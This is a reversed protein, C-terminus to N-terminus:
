GCCVWGGGELVLGWWGLERGAQGVGEAGGGWSGGSGVAALDEVYFGEGEESAIGATEEALRPFRGVQIPGAERIFEAVGGYHEVTENGFQGAVHGCLDKGGVEFIPRRHHAGHLLGAFLQPLALDGGQRCGGGRCKTLLWEFFCVRWLLVM